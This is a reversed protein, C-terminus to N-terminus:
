PSQLLDSASESVGIDRMGDALGEDKTTHHPQAFAGRADRVRVAMARANTAEGDAVAEPTEDTTREGLLVVIIELRCRRRM